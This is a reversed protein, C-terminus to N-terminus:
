VNAHLSASVLVIASLIIMYLAFEFLGPHWIAEFWGLRAILARLCFLIAYAAIMMLSIPAVYVGLIDTEVFSM